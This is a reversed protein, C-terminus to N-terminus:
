GIVEFIGTKNINQIELGPRANIEMVLPGLNEDIVIDIGLYKLPSVQATKHAIELIKSWYPLQMGVFHVSSDPHVSVYEGGCMGEKLMGTKLDIAIGLAGQHLNGKGDSEKTPIRLMAMIATEKHLIIRIDPVGEHFINKLFSHNHVFYEIIARDYEGFSYIGFVINALHRHIEEVTYKTGSPSYWVDKNKQLVLIGDGTKGKAPKIAIKHNSSVKEWKEAILGMTEVVTYTDPHPIGHEKLLKKTELKDDAFPFDESRNNPYVLNLNRSNLGAIRTIPNSLIKKLLSMPCKTIQPIPLIRDNPIWDM